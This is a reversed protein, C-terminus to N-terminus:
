CASKIKQWAKEYTNEEFINPLPITHTNNSFMEELEKDSDSYNCIGEVLSNKTYCPKGLQLAIAIDELNNSFITRASNYFKIKGSVSIDGMYQPVSWRKSGFVKINYRGIPYCLHQIFSDEEGVSVLDCRMFEFPPTSYKNITDFLIPYVLQKAVIFKKGYIDINFIFKDKIQIITKNTKFQKLCKQIDINNIQDSHTIFIDPQIDKFVQFAPTHNIDWWIWKDGDKEAASKFGRMLTQPHAQALIKM